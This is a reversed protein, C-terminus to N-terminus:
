GSWYKNHCPSNRPCDMPDCLTPCSQSAKVKPSECSHSKLRLTGSLSSWIGSDTQKLIRPAFQQLIQLQNKPVLISPAPQEYVVTGRGLHVPCAPTHSLAQAGDPTVPLNDDPLCLKPHSVWQTHGQIYRWTSASSDERTNWHYLIRSGLWSICTRDMSWLSRRSFPIAVWQLKRAQLIGYVSSGLPSYDM